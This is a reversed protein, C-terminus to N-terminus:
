DEVMVPKQITHLVHHHKGDQGKEKKNITKEITANTHMTSVMPVVKKDKWILVHVGNRHMSELAYDALRRPKAMDQLRKPAGRMLRLTGCVYVLRSLHVECLRVSNYYNDMYLRYSHSILLQILDGVTDELKRKEGTYVQLNCIYGSKAEAVLYVKNAYKTPKMPNYVRFHLRGKWGLSGEDRSLNQTPTYVSKFLRLLYEMVPRVKILSDTNGLPVARCNFAHFYKLIALFRKGSMARQFVPYNHLRSNTWCNRISPLKVIGMLLVLGMFIATEKENAQHWAVAEARRFVAYMNTEEALFALLEKDFIVPFGSPSDGGDREQAGPTWKKLPSTTTILHCHIITIHSSHSTATSAPSSHSSKSTASSSVM